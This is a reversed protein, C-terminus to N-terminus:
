YVSRQVLQDVVSLGASPGVSRGVSGGVLWGVSRGVSWSDWGSFLEFVSLGVSRNM